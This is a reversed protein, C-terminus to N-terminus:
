DITATSTGVVGILQAFSKRAAASLLGKGFFHPHETGIETKGSVHTAPDIFPPPMARFHLDDKGHAFNCLHGRECYGERFHRCLSSKFNPHLANQYFVRPPASRLRVSQPVPTRPQLDYFNSKRWRSIAM